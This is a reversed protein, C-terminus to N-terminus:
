SKPEFLGLAFDLEPDIDAERDVSDAIYRRLIQRLKARAQFVYNRVDGVKAGLADACERYSKPPASLVCMQFAQFVHPKGQEELVTRAEKVAEKMLCMAWDRDFAEEPSLGPWKPEPDDESMHVIDALGGRKQATRRRLDDIVLNKLRMKLFTRFRGRDPSTDKAFEYEYFRVFFEQTLDAAHDRPLSWRRVLFWYVPKWYKAVLSEFRRQWNPSSRDRTELITSWPTRHPFDISGM